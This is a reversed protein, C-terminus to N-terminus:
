PMQARSPLAENMGRHLKLKVTEKDPCDPPWMNHSSTLDREEKSSFGDINKTMDVLQQTGM